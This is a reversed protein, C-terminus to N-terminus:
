LSWSRTQYALQAGHLAVALGLRDTVLHVM